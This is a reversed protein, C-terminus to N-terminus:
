YNGNVNNVGRVLKYDLKSSIKSIISITSNTYTLDIKM